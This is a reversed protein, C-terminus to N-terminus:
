KQERDKEIYDWVDIVTEGYVKRRDLKYLSSAPHPTHHSYELCIAAGSAVAGARAISDMIRQPEAIRYPPAAFILDFKGESIEEFQNLFRFVDKRIFRTQHNLGLMKANEKAVYISRVAVDVFWANSAGRSLAEFGLGGSGCFL